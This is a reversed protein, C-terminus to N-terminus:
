LWLAPRVPHCFTIRTAEVYFHRGNKCSANKNLANANVALFGNNVSKKSGSVQKM